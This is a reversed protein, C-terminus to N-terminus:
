ISDLFDQDYVVRSDTPETYDTSATTALEGGAPDAVTAGDALGISMKSDRVKELYGGKGAIAEYQGQFYTNVKSRRGYTNHIALKASWENILSPVTSEDRLGPYATILFSDILADASQRMEDLIAAITADAVGDGAPTASPYKSTVNSCLRSLEENELYNLLEANTSYGTYAM